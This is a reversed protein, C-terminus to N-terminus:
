SVSQKWRLNSDHSEHMWTLPRPFGAARRSSQVSEDFAVVRDRSDASTIRPNFTRTKAGTGARDNLDLFVTKGIPILEPL